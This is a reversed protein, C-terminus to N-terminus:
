CHFRNFNNQLSIHSGRSWSSILHGLTIIGCYFVLSKETLQMIVLTQRNHKFKDLQDLLNAFLTFLLVVTLGQKISVQKNRVTQKTGPSLLCEFKRWASLVSVGNVRVSQIARETDM